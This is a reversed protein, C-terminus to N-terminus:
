PMEWSSKRSERLERAVRVQQDYTSVRAAEAKGEPTAMVKAAFEPLVCVMMKHEDVLRNIFPQCGLLSTRSFKALVNQPAWTNKVILIGKHERGEGIEFLIDPITGGILARNIVWLEDTSNDALARRVEAITMIPSREPKSFRKILWNRIRTWFWVHPRKVITFRFEPDIASAGSRSDARVLSKFSGYSLTHREGTQVCELILLLGDCNTESFGPAAHFEEDEGLASFNAAAAADTMTSDVFRYDLDDIVHHWISDRYPLQFWISDDTNCADDRPDPLETAHGAAIAAAKHVLPKFVIWNCPSDKDTGYALDAVEARPDIESWFKDGHLTRLPHPVTMSDYTRALLPKLIEPENM